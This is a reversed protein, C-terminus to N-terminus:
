RQTESSAGTSKEIDKTWTWTEGSSWCSFLPHRRRLWSMLAHCLSKFWPCGEVYVPRPVVCEFWSHGHSLISVWPKQQPWKCSPHPRHPDPYPIPLIVHSPFDCGLFHIIEPYGWSKPFTWVIDYINFDISQQWTIWQLVLCWGTLLDFEQRCWVRDQRSYMMSELFHLWMGPQHNPVHIKNKWINPIDDDWSVKMNKLPTPIGGVLYQRGSSDYRTGGNKERAQVRAIASPRSGRHSWSKKQSM